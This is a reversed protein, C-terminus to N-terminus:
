IKLVIYYSYNTSLLTLNLNPFIKNQFLEEFFVVSAPKQISSVFNRRELHDNLRGPTACMVDVGRHLEREQLFSLM